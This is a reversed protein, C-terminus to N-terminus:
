QWDWADYCEVAQHLDADDRHLWVWELVRPGELTLDPGVFVEAEVVTLDGQSSEVQLRLERGAVSMYVERMDNM